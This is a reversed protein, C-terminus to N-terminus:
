TTALCDIQKRLKRGCGLICLEAQLAPAPIRDPHASALRQEIHPKFPDRKNLDLQRLDNLPAKAGDLYSAFTNMSVVM